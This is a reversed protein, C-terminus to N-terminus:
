ELKFIYASGQNGNAGVDDQYAGAITISGDASISVCSLYDSAASDYATLKTQAWISGNWNFIFEAGRAGDCGTAGVALTNGNSSLSVYRGFQDNAAGGSVTLKTQAWSSGNWKYIYASGQLTNAGITDWFAGVAVTNGDASATISVGYEDGAAGDSAFLHSQQTWISGNWRFVYASGQDTNAGVDDTYAGVVITNGDASIAASYGFIDNAAGDSATLKAQYSWASGNWRYVYASGQDANAGVDDYHAGIALTNGDASVAVSWGFGDNAAGDFATLKTQFGWASGNWRYVYASGQNANAGVDDGGSGVVITNGDASVAVSVGFQDSAAGDSATLKTQAWSSGNWRYIYASGSINGNDDDGYAGAVVTNGDASVAASWGFVDVAAGDSAVFKNVSVIKFSNTLSIRGSTDMAYIKYNNTSCTGPVVSVTKIFEPLSTIFLYPSNNTSLFIGSIGGIASCTGKITYSAIGFTFLDGAPDAVTITPRACSFVVSQTLSTNGAHDVAYAYNTHTGYATLAINTTWNAAAAIEKFIGSDLKVFVKAIGSMTDSPACAFSYSPAANMNNTPNDILMTPSVTDIIVRCPASLNTEGMTNIARAIVSNTGEPLTLTATWVEAGDAPVFSGGNISIEVQYVKFPNAVATTGSFIVQARNTSTNNEPSLIITQLASADAGKWMIDELKSCAVSLSLAFLVLIHLNKM